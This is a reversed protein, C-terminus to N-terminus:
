KVGLIQHVLIGTDIDDLTDLVIKEITKDPHPNIWELSYVTGEKGKETMVRESDVFWTTCYGNHRYYNADFPENQRRDWHCINDGYALPIEVLSGDSYCVRYSAIKKNRVWCIRRLYDSCAHRFILSRFTGNVSFETEDEVAKMSLIDANKIAQTEAGSELSPYSVDQVESRIMPLMESIIRDYSFRNYSRYQESWLMLGTYIFDYLKGEKAMDYEATKVWASLQGGRVGEKRIRTEYRPFHSSYMNGYLVDFGKQVMYDLRVDNETFDYFLKGDKETVIDELMAYMRVTDAVKDNAVDDLIRRGWDDEIADTPHFHISNWFNELKKIPEKTNIITSM